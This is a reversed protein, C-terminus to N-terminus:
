TRGQLVCQCGLTRCCCPYFAAQYSNMSQPTFATCGPPQAPRPSHSRAPPRSRSPVDSRNWRQARLANFRDHSGGDVRNRLSVVKPSRKPFAGGFKPSRQCGSPRPVGPQRASALGLPPLREPPLREARSMLFGDRRPGGFVVNPRTGSPKQLHQTSASPRSIRLFDTTRM